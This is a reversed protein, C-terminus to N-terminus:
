DHGNQQGQNTPVLPLCVRTVMLFASLHFPVLCVYSGGTEGPLPSGTVGPPAPLLGPWLRPLRQLRPHSLLAAAELPGRGACKAAKGRTRGPELGAPSVAM